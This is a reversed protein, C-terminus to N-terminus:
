AADERVIYREPKTIGTRAEITNLSWGWARAKRIVELREAHTLEAAPYQGALNREVAIPDVDTKLPREARIGKPQENPDDIDTWALPPAYGKRRAMERQRGTCHTEPPFTMCLEDYLAAILDHNRRYIYGTNNNRITMNVWARSFGLRTSLDEASWGLAQLAHIRRRAGTIPVLRPRGQLEDWERGREYRAAADKCPRCRCKAIYGARTGHRRDDPSM